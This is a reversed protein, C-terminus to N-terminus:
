AIAATQHATGAALRAAASRGSRLAAELTAPYDRHQYDGALVVGPLGAIDHGIRPRDPTCAFTARKEHLVKSAHPAPLALQEHVQAGIADALTDAPMASALRSDSIVVAGIRWGAPASRRFFWQGHWGSSAIDELMTAVPLADFRRWPAAATGSGTPADRWGLYVTTIPRHGFRRLAAAVPAAPPLGDLLRAAAAPPTAIVVADTEIAAEAPYGSRHLRLAGRDGPERTIRAIAHGPSWQAGHALLWRLVPDVFVAGLSADPLLFDSAGPEGAVSDRLVRLFTAACAEAPATNLASLVLPRWIREVLEAPQATDRWWREVTLGAVARARREGALRLGALVRLLALRSRWGLGAARLVGGLDASRLALGGTSLLQMPSRVLSPAGGAPADVFALLALLEAYAGIMLHQGNDLEVAEGHGWDVTLSRARGGARPAADLLRVDHGDARLRVAASLGAWGAGVVAVKM